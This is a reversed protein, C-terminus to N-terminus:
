EPCYLHSCNARSCLLQGPEPPSKLSEISQEQRLIEANQRAVRSGLQSMQTNVNTFAQLMLNLVEIMTNTKETLEQNKKYLKNFNATLRINEHQLEAIRHGMVRLPQNQQSEPVTPRPQPGDPDRSAHSTEM